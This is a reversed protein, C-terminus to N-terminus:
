HPYDLGEFVLLLISELYPVLIDRDIFTFDRLRGLFYINLFDIIALREQETFYLGIRLSIKSRDSFSDSLHLEAGPHDLEAVILKLLRFVNSKGSNNPGVLIKSKSDFQISTKHKFSYLNNAEIERIHM